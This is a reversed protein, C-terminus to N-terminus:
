RDCGIRVNSSKTHEHEHFETRLLQEAEVTTADFALWGKNDYHAIRAADIGSSTIWEKVAAVADEHPAFM